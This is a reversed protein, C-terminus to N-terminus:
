ISVCSQINQIQTLRMDAKLIKKKETTKKLTTDLTDKTEKIDTENGSKLAAEYAARDKDCDDQWKDEFKQVTADSYGCVAALGHNKHGLGNPYVEKKTVLEGLNADRTHSSIGINPSAYHSTVGNDEIECKGASGAILAYDKAEVTNKADAVGKTLTDLKVVDGALNSTALYQTSGGIMAGGKEDLAKFGTNPYDTVNETMSYGQRVLADPIAKKDGIGKELDVATLVGNAMIAVGPHTSCLALYAADKAVKFAMDQQNKIANEVLATDSSDDFAEKM